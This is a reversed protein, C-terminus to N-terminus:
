RPRAYRRQKVLGMENRYRRRSVQVQRFTEKRALATATDLSKVKQRQAAIASPDAGSKILKREKKRAYELKGLNKHYPEFAKHQSVRVRTGARYEMGKTVWTRGSTKEGGGKVTRGASARMRSGSGGGSAFRGRSDRVYRRAM